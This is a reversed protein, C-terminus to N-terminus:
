KQEEEKQQKRKNYVKKIGYSAGAAILLSVGGDIPTDTTDGGFGPGQAKAKPIICIMAVVLGIYIRSRLKM